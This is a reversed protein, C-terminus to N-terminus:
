HENKDELKEVLITGDHFQLEIPIQSKVDKVSHILQNDQYSLLYGKRMISLPSRENLKDILLSFRHENKQFQNLIKHNLKDNINILEGEQTNIFHSSQKIMQSVIADLKDQYSKLKLSYNQLKTQSQLLNQEHNQILRQPYKLMSSQMLYNLRIKEQDLRHEILKMMHIEATDLVQFVDYQNPTVHTAAATPTLGRLDAVYDVLTIDVEHGVGSVIPTQCQYITKVLQEDNFAWLDELSGGGRALIIVDNNDQDAQLLREILQQPALNGQVLSPYVVVQAIPWRTMITKKIDALAASGQGAIVGIKMPYRPIAKKHEQNFYGQKHLKTRLELYRQHLLGQGAPEMATVTLQLQGSGIYVTANAELVIKQGNEVSFNVKQNQTSFMVCNIKSSSDKLSFYWHGSRYAQFNSVEGEVRVRKFDIADEIHTKLQTVLQTVSLKM